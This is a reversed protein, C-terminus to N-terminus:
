LVEDETINVTRNSRDTLPGGAVIASPVIRESEDKELLPFASTPSSDVLRWQTLHECLEVCMEKVEDSSIDDLLKLSM